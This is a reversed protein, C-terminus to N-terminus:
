SLKAPAILFQDVSVQELPYGNRNHDVVREYVEYVTAEETAELREQYTTTQVPGRITTLVFHEGVPVRDRQLCFFRVVAGPDGLQEAHTTFLDRFLAGQDVGPGIDLTDYWTRYRGQAYLTLCWFYREGAAPATDLTTM